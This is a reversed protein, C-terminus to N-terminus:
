VRESACLLVGGCPVARARQGLRKAGAELALRDPDILTETEFGLRGLATAIDRADNPPNALTPVNRYNGVGVVLAVRREQAFATPSLILLTLVLLSLWGCPCRPRSGWRQPEQEQGGLRM